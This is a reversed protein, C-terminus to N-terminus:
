GPISRVMRAVPSRAWQPKIGQRGRAKDSFGRFAAGSALSSRKSAGVRFSELVPLLLHIIVIGGEVVYLYRSTSAACWPKRMAMTSGATSKSAGIHQERISTM